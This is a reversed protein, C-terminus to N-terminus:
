EKTVKWISGSGDDSVFLAGDPSVAVGVPRGWIDGSGTVFGTMFDEYAGTARGDKGIVVRVVKYGTPQGRNWSGHMTVFAQDKYDPGFADADYFALNLPASHPQFLVDPVTVRDGIDPANGEWRPDLNNGIYYWPWGYFAGQEVHTAYDPPLNDGLDDRENVVCWVEGTQPQVSMGACNRLGTAYYRENSGDPDFALVAARREEEGWAVGLEHGKTWADLGGEPADEMTGDTGVNSGSGVSYYMTKGDPSFAVDRTWHHNPDINDFLVEGDGQAKLDGGNYPYRRLGDSEAVYVWQPNDAPYFGIGYPQMLGSAFTEKETPKADGNAFRYVLVTGDSSNGVFLDGNPAFRIARPNAIGSDVLEVKFGDPVIPMANDPRAVVAPANSASETAGPRPMDDPTIHRMVGPESDELSGYADQGTLVDGSASGQQAQVAGPAAGAALAFVSVL